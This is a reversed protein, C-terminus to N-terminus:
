PKPFSDGSPIISHISFIDILPQFPHFLSAIAPVPQFLQYYISIAPFPQFLSSIDPIAPFTQLPQFHSSKVPFPQFYTSIAPSALFPQFNSQIAPVPCFHRLHSTIAPFKQVNSSIAPIVSPPQFHSSIFAKMPQLRNSIPTFPQFEKIHSFNIPFPLFFDRMRCVFCIKVLASILVLVLFIRSTLCYEDFKKQAAIRCGKQAFTNM